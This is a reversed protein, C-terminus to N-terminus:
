LTFGVRSGSKTLSLEQKHDIKCMCLLLSPLAPKFVFPHESYTLAAPEPSVVTIAKEQVFCAGHSEWLGAFVLLVSVLDVLLHGHVM